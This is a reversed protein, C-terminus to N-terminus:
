WTLPKRLRARPRQRGSRAATAHAYAIALAIVSDQVVDDDPVRYGRLEQDLQPWEAADYRILEKQFAIKLNALAVPKSKNTTVFGIAEGEPLELNELVAEGAANKEIVTLGNYGHHVEEIMRQLVPYPMERYRSYDVVDCVAGTVDLVIGVAADQHRGIDWAHVYHRNDIRSCKGLTEEAARDLEEAAFFYDGDGALADEPNMPYEQRADESRMGRRKARLWEEDRDPRQLADVFFPRTGTEGSVSRRWFESTYNTPGKGTTVFHCSGAMSPEIAQWVRRPNRMRAWEDVHGHTCTSEVATDEDAPYAKVLRRDDPGATLELEHTTTKAIPLQMYDPLRALGFKIAGLLEQAADDRRSFLHVRANTDRFRAVWADYAIELTSFGLKRAKLFFIRSDTETASIFQLQGPWLTEGLIKVTGSEQDIFYWFDVFRRFSEAAGIINELLAPDEQVQTLADPALPIRLEDYM